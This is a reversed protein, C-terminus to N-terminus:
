ENNISKINQQLIIFATEIDVEFRNDVEKELLEVLDNYDKGSIDSDFYGIKYYIHDELAYYSIDFVKYVTLSNNDVNYLLQGIKFKNSIIM